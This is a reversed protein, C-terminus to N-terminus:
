SEMGAKTTFADWVREAPANVVAGSVIPELSIGSSQILAATLLLAIVSM